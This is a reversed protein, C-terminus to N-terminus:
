MSSIQSKPRPPLYTVPAFCSLQCFATSVGMSQIDGQLRVAIQLKEVNADITEQIKKM